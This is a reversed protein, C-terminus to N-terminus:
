SWFADVEYLNWVFERIHTIRGAELRMQLCTPNDLTRGERQARGRFLAIAYRDNAIVDELELHFTGGTLASVNMLFGLIAARGEHRGALAGSRGPFEWVAAEQVAREIADLDAERFARFLDRVMVANPHEMDDTQM